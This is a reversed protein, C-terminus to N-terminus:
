SATRQDGRRAARHENKARERQVSLLEAGLERRGDRREAHARATAAKRERDRRTV